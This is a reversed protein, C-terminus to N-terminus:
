RLDVGFRTADEVAKDWVYYTYGQLTPHDLYDFLIGIIVDDPYHPQGTMVATTYGILRHNCESVLYASKWKTDADLGDAIAVERLSLTLWSMVKLLILIRFRESQAAFWAEVSPRDM